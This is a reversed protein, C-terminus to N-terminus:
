KKGKFILADAAHNNATRQVVAPNIQRLRDSRYTM